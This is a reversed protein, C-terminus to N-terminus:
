SADDIRGRQLIDDTEVAEIADLLAAAFTGPGRASEAAVEACVGLFLLAAAASTLRDDCCGLFASILAGSLCGTGTVKAMLPHGNRIALEREELRVLDSAGTRVVITGQPAAEMAAIERPNGRAAAPRRVLLERAFSLRIPSLECHVPDLVWPRGTTEFADLAHRISDRRSPDLTGLNVLLADAQVAFEAVEDVSATMSPIAGLASLGDATFKQVVSNTLCHVKPRRRRVEGILTATATVVPHVSM